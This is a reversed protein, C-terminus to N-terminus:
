FLAAFFERTADADQSRICAKVVPDPIVPHPM